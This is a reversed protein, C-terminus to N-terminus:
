RPITVNKQIDNLIKLFTSLLINRCVIWYFYHLVNVIYKYITTGGTIVGM